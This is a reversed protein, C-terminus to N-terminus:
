IHILSLYNESHISRYVVFEELTETHRSVCIIKYFEGKYHQYLTQPVLSKAGQSLPPLAAPALKGETLKVSDQGVPLNVQSTNELKANGRDLNQSDINVTVIGLRMGESILKTKMEDEALAVVEKMASLKPDALLRQYLKDADRFTEAKPRSIEALGSTAQLGVGVEEEEKKYSNLLTTKIVGEPLCPITKMMSYQAAYKQTKLLTDYLKNEEETFIFEM